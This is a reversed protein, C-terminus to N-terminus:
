APHFYVVVDCNELHARLDKEFNIALERIEVVTLNGKVIFCIDLFVKVGAKRIRMRHVGFSKPTYVDVVKKVKARIHEGPVADLLERVNNVLNKFPLRVLLLALIIAMVPDIYPSAQPYGLHELILGLLFGLCISFSLLTDLYWHSSSLELMTSKTRKAAIKISIFIFLGLFGSILSGIVPVLYNTVSEAHIIDQIAFWVSVVSTAIILSGQLSGTFPEYKSYGFNYLEDPPRHIRKLSFNTILAAALIVLSASADLILTISDVAVGIVASILFLIIAGWISIRSAVLQEHEVNITNDTM